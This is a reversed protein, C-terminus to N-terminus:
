PCVHSDDRYGFAKAALMVVIATVLFPFIPAYTPAHIILIGGVTAGIVLSVLVGTLRLREERTIPAHALDGVVFIFTATAATTFVGGVNLRRVAASQIGM